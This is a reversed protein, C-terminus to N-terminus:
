KVTVFGLLNEVFRNIHIEDDVLTRNETNEEFLITVNIKRLFTKGLSSM